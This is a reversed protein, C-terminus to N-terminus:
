NSVDECRWRYPTYEGKERIAKKLIDTQIRIVQRFSRNDHVSVPQNMWKEYSACFKQFGGESLIVKDELMEFDLQNLTGLNFLRVVLRDVVPQRFEEVIDLALSKRGYRIGHLFGLYTEFSNADLTAEVEKTLLTYALSLIVNVPDKPPRRNRKEFRIEGRFMKGFSRFYIQSCSGEIGMLENNTSKDKITMKIREISKIDDKYDYDMGKWNYNKIVEIQNDIKNSVIIRGMKLREEMDQYRAYQEFRLFINKSSEAGLQGLYKGSYTFYNVDIGKEMLLHLAQTTIQVNGMISLDTVTNVPIDAIKCRNKEVVIRNNIKKVYAGQEKVYIVAM